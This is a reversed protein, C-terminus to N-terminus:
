RFSAFFSAVLLKMEINVRRVGRAWTGRPADRHQSGRHSGPSTASGQWEEALEPLTPRPTLRPTLDPGVIDYFFIHIPVDLAEGLRDLMELTPIERGSEIRTMLNKTLGTKSQLDELTISRELRIRRIRAAIKM